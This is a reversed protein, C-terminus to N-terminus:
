LIDILRFVQIVLERDKEILKHTDDVDAKQESKIQINLNMRIKKSKFDLNLDYKKVGDGNVSELIVKAKCLLGLQAQLADENMGTIQVFDPFTISTASNFPLLIGM